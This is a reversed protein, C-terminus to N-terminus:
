AAAANGVGGKEAANEASERAAKTRRRRRALSKRRRAERAEADLRGQRKDKPFFVGVRGAKPEGRSGKPYCLRSVETSGVPKVCDGVREYRTFACGGSSASTANAELQDHTASHAAFAHSTDFLGDVDVYTANPNSQHMQSILVGTLAGASVLIVPPGEAGTRQGLISVFDSVRDLVKGRREDWRAIADSPLRVVREKWMGEGAGVGDLFSILYARGHGRLVSEFFVESRRHSRRTFLTSYSIQRPPLDVLYGLITVLNEVDAAAGPAPESGKSSLVEVCPPIPVGFEYTSGTQNRSYDM